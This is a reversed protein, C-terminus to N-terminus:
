AHDTGRGMGYSFTLGGVAVVADTGRGMGYTFTLGDVAVVADDMTPEPEDRLQVDPRRANDM